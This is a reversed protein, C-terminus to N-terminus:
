VRDFYPVPIRRRHEQGVPRVPLGPLKPCQGVSYPHAPIIRRDAPVQILFVLIQVAPLPIKLFTGSLAALHIMRLGVPPEAAHHHRLVFLDAPHKLFKVPQFIIEPYFFPHDARPFDAPFGATHQQRPANHFFTQRIKRLTQLGMIGEEDPIMHKIGVQNVIAQPVQVDRLLVLVAIVTQAVLQGLADHFAHKRFIDPFLEPPHQLIKALRRDNHPGAADQLIPKSIRKGPFILRNEARILSAPFFTQFFQLFRHADYIGARHIRRRQFVPLGPPQVTHFLLHRNQYLAHGSRQVPFIQERRRCSDPVRVVSVSPALVHIRFLPHEPHHQSQAGTGHVPRVPIIGPDNVDVLRLMGIQGCHIFLHPEGLSSYIHDIQLFVAQRFHRQFFDHRAGRVPVM